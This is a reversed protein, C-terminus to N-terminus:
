RPQPLRDAGDAPRGAARAVRSGNPDAPRRMVDHRPEGRSPSTARRLPLSGAGGPGTRRRRARAAAAQHLLISAAFVTGTALHAMALWHLWGEHTVAQILYGSATMTAATLVLSWGSRRGTGVRERIHRWVHRTVIMGLAFVLLPAALIHAKLVLPQLPHNIAAWPEAPELLYKMWAYVLGTLTVLATTIRISWREFPTM